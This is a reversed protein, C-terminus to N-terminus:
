KLQSNKNKTHDVQGPIWDGHGEGQLETLTYNQPLTFIFFTQVPSIKNHRCDKTALM